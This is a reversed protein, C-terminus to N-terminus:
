EPPVSKLRHHCGVGRPQAVAVVVRAIIRGFLQIESPERVHDLGQGDDHVSQTDSGESNGGVGQVGIGGVIGSRSEGGQEIVGTGRADGGLGKVGFDFPSQGFFQSGM